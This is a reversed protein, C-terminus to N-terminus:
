GSKRHALMSEHVCLLHGHSLPDGMAGAVSSVIGKAMAGYEPKKFVGSARFLLSAAASNGSPLDNDITDRPRAFLIEDDTGIDYFTKEKEDYFLRIMEETLTRAEELRRKGGAVEGLSILAGALIAYDELHARVGSVGDLYYRMLRGERDRISSLIFAACGEAAEILDDRGFVWGCEALAEIALANWATIIKRDRGPRARRERAELLKALAGRIDEYVTRDGSRAGARIRLINRGEFNGAESLTYVSALRETAEHGLAEVVEQFDWLYYAGEGGESDADESACFGGAKDRLDRLVYAATSIATDKYFVSGTAEFAGAYLGALLANDYLMKEFHPVNWRKDVSYRHFGGGVHDHIGGEAMATLSKTVIELALPEKTRLHYKLLFRLFMAYPFKTANGFGGHHADFYLRATEFADDSFHAGVPAPEQPAPGALARKISSTVEDVRARNRNFADSVAQLVKTFSPLGFGDEPPFYSGGYFPVGEPTTFVNLPWGGQAGMAQVAKMYLSDIAPREERDVKICVFRENMIRAVGPDEFSEREMVHCWHCASYGISILLPKGEARAREFAEECWPYWDVPNEAHQQLYPSKEGKLRNAHAGTKAM